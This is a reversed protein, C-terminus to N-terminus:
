FLGRRALERSSCLRAQHFCSSGLLWSLLFYTTSLQAHQPMGVRGQAGPHYNKREFQDLSWGKANSREASFAVRLRWSPECSQSLSQQM